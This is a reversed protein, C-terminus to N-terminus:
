DPVMDYNKKKKNKTAWLDGCFKQGIKKQLRNIDTKKHIIQYSAHRTLYMVTRQAVASGRANLRMPQNQTFGGDLSNLVCFIGNLIRLWQWDRWTQKSEVWHAGLLGTHKMSCFQGGYIARKNFTFRFSILNRHDKYIIAFLFSSHFIFAIFIYPHISISPKKQRQWFLCTVFFTDAIM